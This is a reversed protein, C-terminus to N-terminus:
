FDCIFYGFGSFFEWFSDSLNGQFGRFAIKWFFVVSVLVITNITSEARLARMCLYKKRGSVQFNYNQLRM